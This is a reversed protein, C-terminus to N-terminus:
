RYRRRHKRLPRGNEVPMVRPNRACSGGLGHVTVLCQEFTYYNCDDLGHGSLNACWPAGNRASADAAGVTLATAAGAIALVIRPAIARTRRDFIM